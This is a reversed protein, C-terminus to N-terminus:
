AEAWDRKPGKGDYRVAYKHELLWTNVHLGNLLFIDALLRGYKEKGNNRLEVIQGYILAKLADRAILAQACEYPTQGKIEPADISRLRVSFRYVTDDHKLLRAAVTITDGDYVKIVKAYKINPVFATTDKYEVSHLYRTHCCRTVRRWCASFM